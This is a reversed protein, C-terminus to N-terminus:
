KKAQVARGNSKLEVCTEHSKSCCLLCVVVCGLCCSHCFCEGFGLDGLEDGLLVTEGFFLGDLDEVEDGREGVLVRFVSEGQGADALEDELVAGGADTAVRLGAFLDLDFGLADHFEADGLGRLVRDEANLFLECNKELRKSKDSRRKIKDTDM